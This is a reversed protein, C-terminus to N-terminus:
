HSIPNYKHEKTENPQTRTGSLSPGPQRGSGCVSAFLHGSLATVHAEEVRLRM